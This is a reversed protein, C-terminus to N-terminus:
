RLYVKQKEIDESLVNSTIFVHAFLFLLFLYHHSPRHAQGGASRLRRMVIITTSHWAASAAPVPSLLAATATSIGFVDPRVVPSLM